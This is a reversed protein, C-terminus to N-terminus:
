AREGITVNLERQEGGRVIHLPVKRGARDGTLLAVLDDHHRVPAGDLAIITDGMLLGAEGAPSGPEVSVVLLATEQGTSEALAAPLRVPQTSVGLYGRRVRGHSLLAEVVRRVTTAPITVSAGRLLASSNIGAFANGVLLPGGSFGPYMLVDTQLYRDIEGGAGTQWSDGVASVVGLTAQINRGPRALALALQGVRLQSDDWTAATLDGTEVRLVALDTTSDRGVLTASLKEGAPLGVTVHERRVVHHATVIVGGSEWVVGSAGMRRRGGIRVISPAVQAVADAMQESLTHFSDAM